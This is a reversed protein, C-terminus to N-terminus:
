EAGTATIKALLGILTQRERATLVSLLRKEHAM